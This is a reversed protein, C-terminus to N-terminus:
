DSDHSDEEPSVQDPTSPADALDDSVELDDLEEMDQPEASVEGLPTVALGQRLQTSWSSILVDDLSLGSTIVASDQSFRSYEVQRRQAIGEEVVFVYCDEGIFQMAQFPIVLADEIRFDTYSIQASTGVLVNQDEVIGKISFLGTQASAVSSIETIKGEVEGTSSTVVLTQGLSLYPMVVESVSFSLEGKDTTSIEAVPSSASMMDLPKVYVESITGAITATVRYDALLDNVDELADLADALSNQASLLQSEVGTSTVRFMPTGATVYQGNSVFIADLTGNLGCIVPSSAQSEFTGDGSCGVGNVEAAVRRGSQIGGPNSVVITVQRVAVNSYLYEPSGSIETVRGTLKEGTDVFTLQATAGVWSNSVASDIFPLKVKMEQQNTLIALQSSASVAHTLKEDISQVYGSVPAKVLMGDTIANIGDQARTVGNRANDRQTEVQESDVICLLDGVEVMDGLSVFVQEVEGQIGPAVTVRSGPELHAVATGTTTFDMITPTTTEVVLPAVTTDVEQTACAVLSSLMLAVSLCYTLHKM